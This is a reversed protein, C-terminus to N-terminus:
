GLYETQKDTKILYRNYHVSAGAPNSISYLAWHIIAGPGYRALYEKDTYAICCRIFSAVNYGSNHLYRLHDWCEQPLALENTFGEGISIKKTVTM